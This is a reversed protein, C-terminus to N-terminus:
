RTEISDVVSAPPALPPRRYVPWSHGCHRCKCYRAIWRTTSVITDNSKCAPCAPAEYRDAAPRKTVPTVRQGNEDRIAKTSRRKDSSM